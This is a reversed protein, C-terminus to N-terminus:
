EADKRRLFLKSISQVTSKITEPNKIIISTVGFQLITGLLKRFLNGSSGVVTKNSVYGATLGLTTSLINSILDPESAVEKFTNKIINVPKVSDLVIFFHEKLLKGGMSQKEELLRIADRLEGTSTIKQM